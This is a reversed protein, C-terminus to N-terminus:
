PRVQSPRSTRGGHARELRKADRECKALNRRANPVWRHQDAEAGFLYRNWFVAASELDVLRAEADSERGAAAMAELAKYYYVDYDPVFFVRPHDLVSTMSGAAQLSLGREFAALASPLDGSRELTIGLGYLALTQTHPDRSTRIAAEFDRIAERLAGLGLKADGRNYLINARLNPKWTLALAREYAQVELKRDHLKAGALALQYWGEAAQAPDPAEELAGELLDRIERLWDGGLETLVEALLFRLRPDPGDAEGALQAMAVRLHKRWRSGYGDTEAAQALHDEARLLADYAGATSPDRAVEWLSPQASAGGAVSLAVLVGLAAPLARSM